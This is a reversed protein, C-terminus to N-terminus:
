VTNMHSILDPRIQKAVVQNIMQMYLAIWDPDTHDVVRTPFDSKLCLISNDEADVITGLSAVTLNGWRILAYQTDAIAAVPVVPSWIKLIEMSPRILEAELYATQLVDGDDDRLSITVMGPGDPQAGREVLADRIKEWPSPM